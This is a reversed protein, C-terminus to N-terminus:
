LPCGGLKSASKFAGRRENDRVKEFSAEGVGSPRRCAFGRVRPGKNPYDISGHAEDGGGQSPSPNFKPDFAANHCKAPMKQYPAPRENGNVFSPEGVGTGSSALEVRTPYKQCAPSYTVFEPTENIPNSPLAVHAPRDNLHFDCSKPNEYCANYPFPDNHVAARPGLPRHHPVHHHMHGLHHIPHDSRHPDKIYSAILLWTLLVIVVMLFISIVDSSSM